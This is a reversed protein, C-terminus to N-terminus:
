RSATIQAELENIERRWAARLSCYEAYEDEDLAGEFYKLTKYDSESLKTKLEAIRQGASPALAAEFAAAEGAALTRLGGNAFESYENM